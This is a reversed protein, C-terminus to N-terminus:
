RGELRAILQKVIIEHSASDTALRKLIEKAKQVKDQPMGTWFVAAGLHKTYIPIVAEEANRAERLVKLIASHDAM